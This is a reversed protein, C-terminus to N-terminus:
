VKWTLHEEFLGVHVRAEGLSDSGRLAEGPDVGRDRELRHDGIERGRVCRIKEAANITAAGKTPCTGSPM